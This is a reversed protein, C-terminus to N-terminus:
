SERVIDSVAKSRRSTDIFAGAFQDDWFLRGACVLRQQEGDKHIERVHFEVPHHTDWCLFMEGVRVEGKEPQVIFEVLGPQSTSRSSIIKFFAM